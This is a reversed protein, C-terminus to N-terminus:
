KSLADTSQTTDSLWGSESASECECSPIGADAVRELEALEATTIPKDKYSDVGEKEKM